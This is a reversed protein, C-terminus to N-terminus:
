PLETDALGFGVSGTQLVCELKEGVVGTHASLGVRDAWAYVPVLM